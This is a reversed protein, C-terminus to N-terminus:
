NIRPHRCTARENDWQKRHQGTLSCYMLSHFHPRAIKLAEAQVRRGLLSQGFFAAIATEVKPFHKLVALDGFSRAVPLLHFTCTAEALTDHLCAAQGQCDRLSPFM